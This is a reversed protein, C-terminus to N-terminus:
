LAPLCNPNIGCVYEDIVHLSGATEAGLFGILMQEDIQAVYAEIFSKSLPLYSWHWKEEEYGATRGSERSTYPQVFGFDAAFEILWAYEEKGKGHQFYSDELDNFDIDTGWHHRSTGPMSSFRLIRKAREMPNEITEALNMGETLTRGTWKNEWIRKQHEFSRTSSIVVLDIGAKQASGQMELLAESCSKRVFHEASDAYEVPLNIFDAHERYNFDGLLEKESYNM